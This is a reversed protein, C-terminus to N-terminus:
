YDRDLRFRLASKEDESINRANIFKGSIYTKEYSGTLMEEYYYLVKYWYHGSEDKVPQKDVIVYSGDSRSLKLLSKGKADPANFINVNEGTVDATFVGALFKELKRGSDEIEEFFEELPVYDVQVFIYMRGTKSVAYVGSPSNFAWSQEGGIEETESFVLTNHTMRGSKILADVLLAELKEAEPPTQRSNGAAEAASCAAVVALVLIMTFIFRKM